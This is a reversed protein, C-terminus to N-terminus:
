LPNPVFVELEFRQGPDRRARELYQALRRTLQLTVEGRETAICFLRLAALAERHIQRSTFIPAMEVALARVEELHNEELHLAGLDLSVLAADYALDRTIFDRRVQELAKRAEDRHGLGAAVWGELWLVRVLDLDNNLELAIKRLEPLLKEAETFRGLRGLNAVSAYRQQWLFHRGCDESLEELQQLTSLAGKYDERLELANAKNILWTAKAQQTQALQLARELLCLAEPLHRQNQRLSAEIGFLWSVDLIEDELSAGGARWLEWAQRLAQDALAYDNAVRRANAWFGLSYGELRQPNV